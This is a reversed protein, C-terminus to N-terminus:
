DPRGATGGGTAPGEAEAQNGIFLIGAPIDFKAAAFVTTAFDNRVIRGTSNAAIDMYQTPETGDELTGFSNKIVWLDATHAGDVLIGNDAFNHLLNGLLLTQTVPDGGGSVAIHLAVLANCLESLGRIRTDAVSGAATSELKLAFAGDGGAELKCGNIRVRRVNGVVHLGGGDGNGECGINFLSVDEIRSGASGEITLAVADDAEPALFVSGENGLGYLALSNYTAGEIAIAENYEGPFLHIRDGASYRTLAETITLLPRHVNGANDNDGSVPDVFYDAGPLPAVNLARLISQFIQWRDPIPLRPDYEELAAIDHGAFNM